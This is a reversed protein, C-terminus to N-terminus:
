PLTGPAAFAAWNTDGLASWGFIVDGDPNAAVVPGMGSEASAALTRVTDLTGAASRSRAQVRGAWPDVTDIVREWVVIANGDADVAVEPNWADTGAASLTQVPSLVGAASRARLQVRQDTGDPRSWVFVANGAADVAVRAHQAHQGPPSLTQVESLEGTAARAVAQVQISANSAAWTFIATRDPAIAVRPNQASTSEPSLTEVPGLTGGASRTRAQVRYRSGDFRYWTVIARSNTDIAVDPAWGDQGAPSLTQVAGLVGAATRARAQIRVNTGDHGQWVILARGTSDIAIAPWGAEVGAPSVTQVASWVGAASRVRIKLRNFPEDFPLWGFVADGAANVAIIPWWSNEGAPSLTQVAGLAGSASRTRAQMRLNTGDFRRWMLVANGAADIGVRPRDADQGAPSIRRASGFTALPEAQAWALAPAVLVLFVVFLSRIFYSTVSM